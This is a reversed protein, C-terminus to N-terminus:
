GFTFPKTLETEVACWRMEKVVALDYIIMMAKIDITLLSSSARM